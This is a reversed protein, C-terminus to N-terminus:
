HSSGRLALFLVAAFPASYILCRFRRRYLVWGLGLLYYPLLLLGATRGASVSGAVEQPSPGGSLLLYLFSVAGSVILWLVFNLLPIGGKGNPGLIESAYPGGDRWEWFGTDLGFCDVLLDLSTVAMMTALPLAWWLTSAGLGRQVLISELAAYTAYLVPYWGALVIALPVGPVLEPRAHHRLLKLVNVYVHEGVIALGATLGFFVLSDRAGRAHLSHSLTLGAAALSAGVLFAPPPLKAM